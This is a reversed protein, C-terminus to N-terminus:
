AVFIMLLAILLAYISTSQSVAQGVLMTRMVAGRSAPWRGVGTCADGGAYGSGIGCGIAGVGVSIGAGLVAAMTVLDASEYARYMLLLAIVFSLVSPGQSVGQAILMMTTVQNQGEPRRAVGQCASGAPFGCGIGGGIAGFGVAIGAGVFAVGRVFTSGSPDVVLILMMAVILAFISASEAMAQGILMTRQIPSSVAPQRSTGACAQHAAYGEGIGAGIAGFGMAISGGLYALARVVEATEM